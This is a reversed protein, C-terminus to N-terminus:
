QSEHLATVLQVSGKQVVAVGDLSSKLAKKTQDNGLKENVEPLYISYHKGDIESIMGVQNIRKRLSEPLQNSLFVWNPRSNLVHREVRAGWRSKYQFTGNSCCPDSGGLDFQTAGQERAWLLSCWIVVSVMGKKILDLDGQFIGYEIFHCVESSQTVISGGIPRDNVSVLIVGGHKLWQAHDELSSIDAMEGHRKRIFPLYMENYFFELDILSQTFRYSLGQREAKRIWRRNGEIRRGVLLKDLPDPLNIFQSVCDPGSFSYPATPKWPCLRSLECVVLDAGSELWFLTQEPLRWIPIKSLLEIQVKQDQFILNKIVHFEDDGCVFVVCWDEGTLKFAKVRPFDRLFRFFDDILYVAWKVVDSLFTPLRESRVIIFMSSVMVQGYLDKILQKMQGVYKNLINKM